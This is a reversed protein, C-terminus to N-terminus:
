EFHLDYREILQDFDKKINMPSMRLNDKNIKNTNAEKKNLRGKNSNAHINEKM